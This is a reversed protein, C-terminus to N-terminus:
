TTSICSPSPYQGCGGSLNATVFSKFDALHRDSGRSEEPGFGNRRRQRAMKRDRWQAPALAQWCKLVVTLERHRDRKPHVHQVMEQIAERTATQTPGSCSSSHSPRSADPMTM